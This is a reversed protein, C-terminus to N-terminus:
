GWFVLLDPSSAGKRVVSAQPFILSFIGSVISESCFASFAYSRRKIKSEHEFLFCGLLLVSELM